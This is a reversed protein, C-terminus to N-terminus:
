YNRVKHEGVNCWAICTVEETHGTLKYMPAGPTNIKWIYANEDSSGSALYEEDPSLCAKVYFTRNEHGYYDAM